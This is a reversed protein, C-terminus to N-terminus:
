EKRKEEKGAVYLAWRMRKSKIMRIVSCSWYLNHLKKNNLIEEDRKPSFIRLAKNEFV